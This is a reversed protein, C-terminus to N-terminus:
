GGYFFGHCLNVGIPSHFVSLCSDLVILVYMPHPLSPYQIHFQWTFSGSEGLFGFWVHMVYLQLLKCLLFVSALASLPSPPPM